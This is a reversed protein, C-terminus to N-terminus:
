YKFIFPMVVSTIKHHCIQMLVVHVDEVLCFIFLNGWM